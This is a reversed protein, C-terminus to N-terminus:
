SAALKRLFKEAYDISSELEREDINSWTDTPSHYHRPAGIVPDICSLCVTDWGRVLFPLSDTAGSPIVYKTAKLESEANTADIAALIKPPV